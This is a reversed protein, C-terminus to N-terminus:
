KTNKGAVTDFYQARWTMANLIEAYSWTLDAASLQFGSNRDMQEWVHFGSGAVHYRVRLLVGDGQAAFVQALSTADTPLSAVNFAAKWVSLVNSAPVGNTLIYIAGRYFLSALAASILQWPNGGAYVDGKYRGYLIGPVGNATDQTNIAYEGCFVANYYAVTQAVEISTPAFLDDEAYFGDNLGVIVGGDQPHNTSEQIFVGNWHNAYLTSNITLATNYYSTASSTDGMATAFQSGLFLAKKMTIRNWFFDTSQTEEWLDCTNSDYGTLIYDLDYKIAGGNYSNANNTWLYSQVYSLENNNILNQAAIMMTTSRLGPADDQPRCWGGTYPSANSLEFKPEVRVDVGNPDTQSQTKLEWQIYSKVISEIDTFNGPNTEQLARMSLAADRLWHYYYSGATTTAFKPAAAVGGADNVNLNLLFYGRMTEVEASSFPEQISAQYNYCSSKAGNGYYCWPVTGVSSEAWCCGAAQCSSQDVNTFGCDLKTYDPVSCDTASAVGLFHSLLPLLFLAFFNRAM